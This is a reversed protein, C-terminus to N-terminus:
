APDAATWEYIEIPDGNEPFVDTRAHRFGVKELLHISRDNDPSVIAHLKTIGLQQRAHDLVGCAAERAFGKATHEALFAYGLDPTDFGERSVLGCIGIPNVQGKLCVLWLGFGNERYSASLKNEIYGAALGLSSIGRDGIGRIYDPESMLSLFFPADAAVAERFVLRATKGPATTM